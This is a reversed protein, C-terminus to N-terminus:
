VAEVIDVDGMPAITLDVTEGDSDNRYRVNTIRQRYIGPRCLSSIDIDVLTGPILLEPCVPASQTLSEFNISIPPPNSASLRNCAQEELVSQKTSTASGEVGREILMFYPDVGGCSGQAEDSSVFWKTAASLGHETVEIDEAFHEDKLPGIPGFAFDEGIILSRRVVTFDLGQETLNRLIEGASQTNATVELDTEREVPLYQVLDLICADRFEIPLEAADGELLADEIVTKAITGLDVDEFSYDNHVLRVDLWAMIDRATFYVLNKKIKITVIPGPGWVVEGGRIVMMEHRWTRVDTVCDCCADGRSDGELHLTVELDSPNDLELGYSNFTVNETIECLIRSGCHDMIFIQTDPCGIECPFSM